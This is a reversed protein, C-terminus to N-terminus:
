TMNNIFQLKEERFYLTTSTGFMENKSKDWNEENNM